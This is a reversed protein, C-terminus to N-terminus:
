SADPENREVCRWVIEPNGFQNPRREGSDYILGWRRLESTRPQVGRYNKMLWDSVETTTAGKEFSANITAYVSLRLGKLRKDIKEGAAASTDPSRGPAPLDFLDLPKTM